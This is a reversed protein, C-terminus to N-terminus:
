KIQFLIKTQTFVSHKYIKHMRGREGEGEMKEETRNLIEM